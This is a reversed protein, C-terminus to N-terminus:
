FGLIILNMILDVIAEPYSCLFLNCDRIGAQYRKTTQEGFHYRLDKVTTNRYDTNNTLKLDFCHFEKRALQNYDMYIEFSRGPITVEFVIKLAKVLNNYKQLFPNSNIQVERACNDKIQTVNTQNQLLGSVRQSLKL